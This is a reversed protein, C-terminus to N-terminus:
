NSSNYNKNFFDLFDVKLLRAMRQLTAIRPNRAGNLWSIITVRPIGNKELMSINADCGDGSNLILSINRPLTDNIVRIRKRGM